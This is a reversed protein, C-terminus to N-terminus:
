HFFEIGKNNTKSRQWEGRLSSLDKPKLYEWSLGKVEKIWNLFGLEHPAIGCKIWKEASHYDYGHSQWLNVYTLNTFDPHLHNWHSSKSSPPTSPPPPIWYTKNEQLLLYVVVIIILLPILKNTM